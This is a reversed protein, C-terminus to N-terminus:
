FEALALEEDDLEVKATPKKAPPLPTVKGKVFSDGYQEMMQDAVSQKALTPGIREQTIKQVKLFGEADKKYSRIAARLSGEDDYLEHKVPLGNTRIYRVLQKFNMLGINELLRSPESCQTQKIKHTYLGTYDPYKKPMMVPAYNHKFLSIASVKDDDLQKHNLPVDIEYEHVNEGKAEQTYYYGTITVIYHIDELASKM